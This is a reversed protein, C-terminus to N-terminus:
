FYGGSYIIDYDPYAYSGLWLGSGSAGWVFPHDINSYGWVYDSGLFRSSVVLGSQRIGFSGTTYKYRTLLDSDSFDAGQLKKLQLLIDKLTNTIDPIKKNVKITLVEGSQETAKNFNYVCELIQYTTNNISYIPINVVCTDGVNLNVIDKLQLTGEKTPDSYDELEKLMIASATLPDKINTDQIVRVRKGYQQQSVDNDGVKVIPLDRKYNIYVQSGTKPVNDGQQTGSTFVIQKEDYNVLYKVDSGPTLTLQYIAGPQIDIKSSVGSGLTVETNHPKYLLTFVSGTGDAAFDEKYGDLYRDGYVWVQNYVTNRREKFSTQLINTNNFTQGSSSLGGEEFHLDKSNDIYFIYGSLESLQKISDYVPTQNFTIKDVILGDQVNTTTIDDTYKSIIDKVIDGATQSTYVEPEVTRDVLRATYDRGSITLVESLEKGTKNIEELIGLFVQTTAPSVDKDIYIKVEDGIVFSDTYQGKYNNIRAVFKTISNVDNLSKTVNCTDFFVEVDNITIKINVTM